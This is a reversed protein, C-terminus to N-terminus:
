CGFSDDLWETDLNEVQLCDINWNQQHWDTASQPFGLLAINVFEGWEKFNYVLMEVNFSDVLQHNAVMWLILVM